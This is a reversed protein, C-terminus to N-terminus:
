FFEIENIIEPNINEKYKITLEVTCKKFIEVLTVSLSHDSLLQFDNSIVSIKM